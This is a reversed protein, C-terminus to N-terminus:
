VAAKVEGGEIEIAHPSNGDVRTVFYQYDDNETEKLFFAFSDADLSEIGDVCIVKFEGNLARVIQLGFKLQESSSMNDISVGNVLIDDGVVSLGEVPLKAEAILADPIQKTLAKVIGDLRDAEKIAESLETRVDDAHKVKYFIERQSELTVLSDEAAKITMDDSVDFKEDLASVIASQVEKLKEQLQTIQTNTDAEQKQLMAVRENRGAERTREEKDKQIAERLKVIQEESAERFSFDPPVSAMIDALVKEKKTKEANAVTRQDYYYKRADEVVELAHADYDLGALKEGTYVALGEQTITLKIASLLYKKRDTAKLDFFEIPNFAFNGLIGDLFKQPKPYKLGEKNTVDLKNGEQTITRHVILDEMEVTIEAKNEGIRISTSDADGTFAAKIAKLVSTKGQKNKGVIVNAKSPNMEIDKIKLFNSISLKAIKM